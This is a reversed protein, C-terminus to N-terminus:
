WSLYSRIMSFNYLLPIFCVLFPYSDSRGRKLKDTFLMCVYVCLCVYMDVFMCLSDKATMDYYSFCLM